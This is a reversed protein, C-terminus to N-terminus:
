HNGLKRMFYDLTWNLQCHELQFHLFHKNEQDKQKLNREPSDDNGESFQPCRLMRSQGPTQGWCEWAVHCGSKFGKLVKPSLIVFLVGFIPNNKTTTKLMKKINM